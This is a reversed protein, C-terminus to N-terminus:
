YGNDDERVIQVPGDESYMMAYHNIERAAQEESGAEVEAVIVNNQILKYVYRKM